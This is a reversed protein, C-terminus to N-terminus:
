RKRRWGLAAAVAAAAVALVAEFGPSKKPEDLKQVVRITINYLAEDRGDSVSLTVTYTGPLSFIAVISSGRGLTRNGETWTYTVRDGEPDTAEASFVVEKDYLVKQGSRPKVGTINPPSNFKLIVLRFTTVAELGEWDSVTIKVTYTGVDAARPTFSITGNSPGINFVPCNDKFDLTDDEDPDSANVQWSFPTGVVLTFNPIPEVSPPHDFTGISNLVSLNFMRTAKGGRSDKVTINCRYFGVMDITPFFSIIGAQSINFLPCDDSFTLSDGYPLDPDTVNVALTFQVGEEASSDPIAKMVPPDQVDQIIMTMLQSGEAGQSDVATVCIYWTGVDSQNPTFNIWGTRPDIQFFSVSDNYTVTESPDLDVDVDRASIKYSYPMGQSASQDPIQPIVPPDNVPRVTLTFNESEGALGESDTAAVRFNLKGWWNRTVTKMDLTHNDANILAQVKKPDQQYTVQYSFKRDLDDTFYANLDLVSSLPSDEDIFLNPIPKCWPPASYNYVFQSIKIKCPTDSVFRVTVNVFQDRGARSFTDLATLMASEAATVTYDFREAALSWEAKGDAGIDLQPNKPWIYPYGSVTINVYDTHIYGGNDNMALVWVSRNDIYYDTDLQVRVDVPQTPAATDLLEWISSWNNWVYVIYAHQTDVSAYGRWNVVITRSEDVPVKLNFLEYGDQDTWDGMQDLTDGDAATLSSLDSGSIQSQALSWVRTNRTFTNTSAKYARHGATDDNYDTAAYTLSGKVYRGTIDCTASTVSADAPVPIKFASSEYKSGNAKLEIEATGAQRYESRPAAAPEEDQAAAPLVPM